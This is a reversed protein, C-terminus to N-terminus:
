LKIIRKIVEKQDDKIHIFFTNGHYTSLDIVKTNKSNSLVKGQLNIINIEFQHWQENLELYVLGSNTPNPYVNISSNIKDELGLPDIILVAEATGVYNEDKITVLVTYTGSEVPLDENGNYLAKVNLGEPKTEIRAEKKEGDYIKELESIFIEAPAKRIFLEGTFIGKYIDDDITIQVNYMGANVPLAYSNDYLIDLNLDMPETSLQISKPYGDYVFENDIIEIEAQFKDVVFIESIESSPCNDISVQVTYNGPFELNLEQGNEGAISENDLFWQNGDTISSKLLSGYGTGLQDISPKPPIICIEQSVQVASYRSDGPQSAVINVSGPQLITLVNDVIQVNDSSSSFTVELNSSSTANLKFSGIDFLIIGIEEFSITQDVKDITGDCNNDKGDPLAPAGPYVDPDSDDCDLNNNVTMEPQICELIPNAPDGFSDGDSDLYWTEKKIVSIDAIQSSITGCNDSVEVYYLGADEIQINDFILSQSFVGTSAGNKYWQYRLSGTGTAEVQLTIDTGECTESSEPHQQIVLQIPCKDITLLSGSPLIGEMESFGHIEKVSPVSRDIQIINGINDNGGKQTFGYFTGDIYEILGAQPNRGDTSGLDLILNVEPIAPDLEFIVGENNLGGNSTLGIIKGDGSEILEGTPNIGLNKDIFDHLKKFDKNVPDFTYLIGNNESGGYSATGYLIGDSGILLGGLPYKGEVSDFDHVLNLVETSLDYEFLSGKNKEGGKQTLGYIKGNLYQILIGTPNAGTIKAEFDHKKVIKKSDPDYEFLVGENNLGGFVTTGYYRGDSALLLKGSPESGTSFREFNFIKYYSNNYPDLEFLIGDNNSGGKRTMGLLNGEEGQIFTGQPLKGNEAGDFDLVKELISNIPDYKYLVGKGSIGGFLTLGYILGDNSIVVRGQPLSGNTDVSFDMRKIVEQTALNFSFLVGQDNIGGMYTLGFLNGNSDETLGDYPNKGTKLGEFHHRTTFTKNLLDFQFLVGLNYSGGNYTVGYLLGDTALLLSGYPNSGNIKGDFDFIKEFVKTVPNFKIITGKDSSGGTSTLGVLEENVLTFGGYPSSGNSKDFDILKNYKETILDFEFVVGCEKYGGKSTMGYLKGNPHEIISGYPQGGVDKNDFSILQRMSGKDPNFEYLVGADDTGGYTTMGYMMGNSAELLGATPNRGTSNGDFDIIKIFLNTSPDFSFLLGSNFAGGNETVGYFLGNRSIILSGRPNKGQASFLFEFVKEFSTGEPDVKIVTGIGDKGGKDILGWFEKQGNVNITFCLISFFTLILNTYKRVMAKINIQKQVSIWYGKLKVM